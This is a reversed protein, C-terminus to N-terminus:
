GMAMLRCYLLARSLRMVLPNHFRHQLGLANPTLRKPATALNVRTGTLKKPFTQPCLVLSLSAGSTSTAEPALLCRRNYQAPAPPYKGCSSRTGGEAPPTGPCALHASPLAPPFHPLPFSARGHCFMAALCSCPAGARFGGRQTTPGGEQATLAGAGPVEEPKATGEWHFGGRVQKATGM